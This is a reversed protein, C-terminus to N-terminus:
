FKLYKLNLFESEAEIWNECFIQYKRNSRLKKESKLITIMYLLFLNQYWQHFFIYFISFRDQANDWWNNTITEEGFRGEFDLLTNLDLWRVGISLEFRSFQLIQNNWNQVLQFSLRHICHKLAYNILNELSSEKVNKICKLYIDLGAKSASIKYSNSSSFIM